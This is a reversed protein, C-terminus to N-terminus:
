APLLQAKEKETPEKEKMVDYRGRPPEKVVLFCICGLIIGSIGCFKYMYRWGSAKILLIALSGLAGGMYVGSSEIANATSRREPPFYDGIISYSPANCASEVIGLLFRMAVLVMFSNVSGTIISTLSWLICAIGLMKKRNVKQSILGSLIGSTTYSISFGLGSLLGYWQSM